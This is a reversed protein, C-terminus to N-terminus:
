DRLEKVKRIDGRIVKSDHIFNGYIVVKEIDKIM